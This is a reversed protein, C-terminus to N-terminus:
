GDGGANRLDEAVFGDTLAEPFEAALSALMARRELEPMVRLMRCWSRQRKHIRWRKPYAEGITGYDHLRSPKRYNAWLWAEAPGGRTSVTFHETHWGVLRQSYLKCRYHSILVPWPVEVVVDLFREHDAKTWDHAYCDRDPQRRTERLYPPDCYVFVRGDRRPELAAKRSATPRGRRRRRHVIASGCDGGPDITAAPGGVAVLLDGFHEARRLLEIGDGVILLVNEKRGAARAGAIALDLAGPDLDVLISLKAPRIHQWVAATGAFPECYITHPPIWAIIRQWVGSGNKSGVFKNM